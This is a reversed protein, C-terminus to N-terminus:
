GGSLHSGWDLITSAITVNCMQSPVTPKNCKTGLIAAIETEMENTNGEYGAFIFSHFYHTKL